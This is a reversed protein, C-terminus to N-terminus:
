KIYFNIFMMINLTRLLKEVIILTFNQLFSYFIKSPSSSCWVNQALNILSIITYNVEKNVHFNGHRQRGHIIIFWNLKIYVDIWKHIYKLKSKWQEYLLLLLLLLNTCQWGDVHGRLSNM